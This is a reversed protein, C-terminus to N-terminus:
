SADLSLISDVSTSITSALRRQTADVQRVANEQQELWHVIRGLILFSIPPVIAAYLLVDVGFYASPGYIDHIWRGPGIEYSVFLIGIAFPLAWQLVRMRDSLKALLMLLRWSGSVSAKRKM